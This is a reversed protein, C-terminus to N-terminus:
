ILFQDNSVSFKNPIVSLKLWTPWTQFNSYSIIDEGYKDWLTNINTSIMSPLWPQGLTQLSLNQLTQGDLVTAHLRGPRGCICSWYIVAAVYCSCPVRVMLDSKSVLSQDFEVEFVPNHKRSLLLGVYVEPSKWTMNSSSNFCIFAYSGTNRTKLNSVRINEAIIM